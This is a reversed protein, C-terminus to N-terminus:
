ASCHVTLFWVVHGNANKKLHGRHVLHGSLESLNPDGQRLGRVHVIKGGVSQEGYGTDDGLVVFDLDM